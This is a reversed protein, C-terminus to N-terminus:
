DVFVLLSLFQCCEHLFHGIADRCQCIISIVVAYPKRLQHAMLMVAQKVEIGIDIPLFYERPANWPPRSRPTFSPLCSPPATRGGPARRGAGAARNPRSIRVRLLTKSQSKESNHFTIAIQIFSM